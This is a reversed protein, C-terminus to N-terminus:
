EGKRRRGRKKKPEEPLLESRDEVYPAPEAKPAREPMPAESKGVRYIWDGFVPLTWTSVRYYVGPYPKKQWGRDHLIMKDDDKIDICVFGKSHYFKEMKPM